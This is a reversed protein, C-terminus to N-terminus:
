TKLLSNLCVLIMGDSQEAFHLASTEIEDFIAQLSRGSITAAQDPKIMAVTKRCGDCWAEVVRYRRRIVLVRETEFIIETVKRATM